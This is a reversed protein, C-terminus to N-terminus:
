IKDFDANRNELIYGGEGKERKRICVLLEMQTDFGVVM